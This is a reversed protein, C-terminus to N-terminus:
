AICPSSPPEGDIGRVFAEVEASSRLPIFRIHSWRPDAMCAAMDEQKRKQQTVIWWALSEEKKWLMLQPWFKEYNTGWLLERTRRRVWSRRLMRYLLQPVPLDIWIVTDLRPWFIKRSFNMYSGAVVWGNGATAQAIRRELEDPDIDNLGIWDPLWNLADLEILPIDLRDALKQALTSKGACSNGAIHIKRGIPTQKIIHM